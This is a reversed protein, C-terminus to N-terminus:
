KKNMVEAVKEKLKNGQLGRSLITGDPALIMIHPIGTIGYLDTPIKQANFIVPWPLKHQEIAKQTNEPEDWVAVGVVDLGKPGYEKLIEKIVATERICPGCWSAWFDVLTFKGKGVYDSLKVNAGNKGPVTFDTFKKGEATKAKNVAGDYWKQVRKMALFEESLGKRVSDMQAVNFDYTYQLFAYYGIPNNKNAEFTTKNLQLLEANMKDELQSQQIETLTTDSALKMYKSEISDAGASYKTFEENLKGGKVEDKSFDISINGDELIFTAQPRENFVLRAVIPNDIKGNFTIANGRIMTSDITDGTDYNVLYATKGTMSNDQLLANVNYNISSCSLLLFFTLSYFLLKKM